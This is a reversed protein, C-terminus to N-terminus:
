SPVTKKASRLGGNALGQKGHRCGSASCSVNWYPGRLDQVFKHSRGQRKERAYFGVENQTPLKKDKNPRVTVSLPPRSPWIPPIEEWVVAGLETERKSGSREQLLHNSQNKSTPTRERLVEVLKEDDYTITRKGPRRQEKARDDPIIEGL